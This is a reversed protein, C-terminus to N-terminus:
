RPIEEERGEHEFKEFFGAFINRLAIEYDAIEIM